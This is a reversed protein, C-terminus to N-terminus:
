ITVKLIGTIKCIDQQTNFILEFSEEKKNIEKQSMEDFNCLCNLYMLKQKLTHPIVIGNYYFDEENEM